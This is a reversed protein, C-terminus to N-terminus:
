HAFLLVRQLPWRRVHGTSLDTSAKKSQSSDPRKMACSSRAHPSSPWEIQGSSIAIRKNKAITKEKNYYASTRMWTSDALAAQRNDFDSLCIPSSRLCLPCTQRSFVISLRFCLKRSTLFLSAAIKFQSIVISNPQM